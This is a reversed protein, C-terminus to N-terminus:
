TVSSNTPEKPDSTSDETVQAINGNDSYFNKSLSELPVASTSRTNVYSGISQSMKRFASRTGISNANYAAMNSADIGLNQQVEKLDQNAGMYSITWKKTSEVEKIMEAVKRADHEKSNNEQGDTLIILMYTTEDTDEQAKLLSIARAVGDYMATLGSPDYHEKTIKPMDEIPVDVFTDKISDYGAFSVLSVRSNVGKKKGNRLEDLQENLGDLTEKIVYGMSSSADLAIAVRLLKEDKRLNM